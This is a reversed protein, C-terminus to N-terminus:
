INILPLAYYSSAIAQSELDTEDLSCSLESLIVDKVSTFNEDSSFTPVVLGGCFLACSILLHSLRYLM